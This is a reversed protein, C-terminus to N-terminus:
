TQLGHDAILDKHAQSVPGLTKHSSARHLCVDRGLPMESSQSCHSTQFTQELFHKSGLRGFFVQFCGFVDSFMRFRKFVDSFTCLTWFTRFMRFHRFNKFSSIPPFPSPRPRSPPRPRLIEPASIKSSRYICFLLSCFLVQASCLSVSRFLGSCILICLLLINM